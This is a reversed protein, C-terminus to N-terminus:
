KVSRLSLWLDIVGDQTAVYRCFTEQDLEWIFPNSQRGHLHRTFELAILWSYVQEAFKRIKMLKCVRDRPLDQIHRYHEKGDSFVPAGCEGCFISGDMLGFDEPLKDGPTKLHVMAMLDEFPPINAPVSMSVVVSTAQI